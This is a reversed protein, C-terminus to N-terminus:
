APVATCAAVLAAFLEASDLEPHWQVGVVFRRAPDEVSEALGDDTWGTVTLGGPGAVGQHHHSAQAARPPPPPARPPRPGAPPGATFGVGDPRDLIAPDLGAPPLVVPSGGGALIADVYAQPVLTAPLDWIDWRAPDSYATIAIVPRM